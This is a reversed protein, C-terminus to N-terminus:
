RPTMGEVLDQITIVCKQVSLAQSAVNNRLIYAPHVISAFRIMQGPEPLWDVEGFMAQGSVHKSALEGVLVIAQPRCLRVLEILRPACQKISAKDPETAKRGNEPDRPICAVLNALAYTFVGEILRSIIHDIVRGAPGAFTYGLTDESEGPAEGIFCVDCPVTGRLQVRRKAGACIAAGCGDRWRECFDLFMTSM